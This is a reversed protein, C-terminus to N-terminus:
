SLLVNLVRAKFAGVEEYEDCLIFFTHNHRKVRIYIATDFPNNSLKNM